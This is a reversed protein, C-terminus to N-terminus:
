LRELENRRKVLVAIAVSISELDNQDYVLHKASAIAADCVIDIAPDDLQVTASIERPGMHIDARIARLLEGTEADVVKPFGGENTLRVRKM